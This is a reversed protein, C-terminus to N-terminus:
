LIVKTAVPVLDTLARVVAVTVFVGAGTMELKVTVGDVRGLLPPGTVTDAARESAADHVSLVDPPMVPSGLVILQEPPEIVTGRVTGWFM